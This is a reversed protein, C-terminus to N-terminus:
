ASAENTDRVRVEGARQEIEQKLSKYLGLAFLVEALVFLPGILLGMLDDVFAPKKGEFFHGIFQVVWGAIFLGLGCSLWVTTSMQALQLAAYIGTAMLAAMILGFVVNLRLYFLVTLLWVLMAPNVMFGAVETLPRSLLVIVAFVIAPIGFLHTTINRPDRHYQAYTSLHEIFSKM